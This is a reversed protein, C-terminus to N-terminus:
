CHDEFRIRGVREEALLSAKRAQSIRARQRAYPIPKRWTLMVLSVQIRQKDAGHTVTPHM